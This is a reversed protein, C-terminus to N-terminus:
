FNFHNCIKKQHCLIYVYSTILLLLNGATLMWIMQVMSQHIISILCIETLTFLLIIYTYRLYNLALCYYAITGVLSFLFMMLVYPPIILSVGAYKQGFIVEVIRPYIILISSAAGSILATGMLSENLLKLPGEDLENMQIANPFMVVLISSPLFLIAKGIVSAATYIGADYESFFYKSFIVDVNSPVALCLLVITAPILCFNLEKFDYKYFNDDTKLYPRLLFLSFLFAALMGLSVAGIAGSVGYGSNVLLIAIILKPLFTLINLIALSNFKRLGQFIGLVSPLPFSLFIVTGVIIFENISYINFSKSIIQSILFFVVFGIIGLYTTRKILGYIIFSINNNENKAVYRTIAGTSGTQIINSFVSTVYIIAFLAGFIGYEQPGFARGVYIQYIFNCIGSFLYVIFIIINQRIFRNPFNDEAM